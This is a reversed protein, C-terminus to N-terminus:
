ALFRVAERALRGELTPPDIAVLAFAPLTVDAASPDGLLDCVVVAVLEKRRNRGKLSEPHDERLGCSARALLLHQEHVGPFSVELRGCHAIDAHLERRLTRARPVATTQTPAEVAGPVRRLLPPPACRRGELLEAEAPARRAGNAKEM